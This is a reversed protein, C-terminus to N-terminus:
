RHTRENLLTRRVYGDAYKIGAVYGVARGAAFAAVLLAVLLLAAITLVIPFTM